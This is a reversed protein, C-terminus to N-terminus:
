QSCLSAIWSQKKAGSAIRYFTHIVWHVPHPFGTSSVTFMAASKRYM